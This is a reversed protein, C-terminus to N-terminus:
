RSTHKKRTASTKRTKPRKTAARKAHTGAKRKPTTTRARTPTRSGRKRSPPATTVDPARTGQELWFTLTQSVNRRLTPSSLLATESLASANEHMTRAFRGKLRLKRKIQGLTTTAPNALVVYEYGNGRVKKRLPDDSERGLMFVVPIHKDTVFTRTKFHKLPKAGAYLDNSNDPVFDISINRVDDFDDIGTSPPLNVSDSFFKGSSVGLAYAVDALRCHVSCIVHTTDVPKSDHRRKFGRVKIRYYAELRPEQIGVVIDATLGPTRKFM